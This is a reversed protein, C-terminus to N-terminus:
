NVHSRPVVVRVAIREVDVRHVPDAVARPAVILHAKRPNAQVVQVLSVILLAQLCPFSLRALRLLLRLSDERRCTKQLEVASIGRHLEEIKKCFQQGCNEKTRALESLTRYFLFDLFVSRRRGSNNKSRLGM